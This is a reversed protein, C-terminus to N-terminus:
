QALGRLLVRGAPATTFVGRDFVRAGRLFTAVVAGSLTRGAYPTIPHRQALRAPDVRFSAEPDWVVLDADFGPAIRGKRGALGALTAPAAAMWRSLDLLRRSRWDGPEDHADRVSDRGADGSRLAGPVAGGPGGAVVGRPGGAEGDGEGEPSARAVLATWMVPLGLELSAIGGWARFFDGSEAHKMAPPCPSHDSVVMDIVGADLARWLAERNGADRIPPACKLETAGDPVEDAAFVLYHPCTEVSVHLGEERAARLADVAEAAALHVVHLRAGHRRCLRLLLAIADTEAALPRSALWTAHRRPAAGALAASAAAIPGPLEAHALLPAGLAALEPLAAELDSEGVAPFEDVGSPVLFCKFGLVGAAFLPRLERANGPVVGGWFGVDVALQGGAAALKAELAAVTTTAPVSNLPMDVLTTVGGASAARTATAFGEWETRGPENVHVHTDVLGPMVVLEGFDDLAAGAPVADFPALATVVGGAVHVAAPGVAGGAVVRRSRIVRLAPSAAAARTPAM